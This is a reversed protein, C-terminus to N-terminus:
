GLVLEAALRLQDIDAGRILLTTVASDKSAKLRERIRAKPGVLNIEDVFDRPVAAVAEGRKGAFYLDQIEQAEREYGFRGM